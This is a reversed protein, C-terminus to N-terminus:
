LNWKMKFFTTGGQFHRWERRQWSVTWPVRSKQLPADVCTRNQWVVELSTWLDDNLWQNWRLYFESSESLLKLSCSSVVETGGTTETNIIDVKADQRWLLVTQPTLRHLAQMTGMQLLCRKERSIAHHVVTTMCISFPHCLNVSGKSSSAWRRTCYHQTMGPDALPSVHTSFKTYPKLFSLASYLTSYRSFSSVCTLNSSVKFTIATFLNTDGAPSFVAASHTHTHAHRHTHMHEATSYEMSCPAGEGPCNGVEWLDWRRRLFAAKTQEGSRERLNSTKHM